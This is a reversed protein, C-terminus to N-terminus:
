RNAVLHGSPPRPTATVRGKNAKPVGYRAVYLETIESWGDRAPPLLGLHPVFDGM